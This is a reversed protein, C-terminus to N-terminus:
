QESLGCEWLTRGKWMAHQIALMYTPLSQTHAHTYTDTKATFYTCAKEEMSHCLLFILPHYLWLLMPSAWPVVLWLGVSHVCNVCHMTLYYWVYSHPFHKNDWDTPPSSVVMM